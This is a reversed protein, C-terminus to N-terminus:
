VPAVMLRGCGGEAVMKRFSRSSGVGMSAAVTGVGAGGGGGGDVEWWWPLWCGVSVGVGVM